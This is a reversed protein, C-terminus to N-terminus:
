DDFTQCECSEFCYQGSAFDQLNKLYLNATQPALKYVDATAKNMDILGDENSYNKPDQLYPLVADREKNATELQKLELLGKQTAAQQQQVALPNIQQAQQYSQIGRALNLMDGLSSQQTQPTLQTNFGYDAM